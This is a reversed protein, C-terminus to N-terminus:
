GVHYKEIFKLLKPLCKKIYVDINVASGKTTGIFPTSIGKSSLVLWVLIKPEFKQKSKFKVDDPTNEKNSSYFGANDPTKEDSFTFYKKDDVIIFTEQDTLERHLKRCKGPIQELQKSHIKTCATEQLIKFRNEKFKTPYMTTLGRIEKGAKKSQNWYSKRYSKEIQAATVQKIQSSSRTKAEERM